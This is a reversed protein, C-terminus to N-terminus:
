MSFVHFGYWEAQFFNVIIVDIYFNFMILVTYEVNALIFSLFSFESLSGYHYFSSWSLEGSVM